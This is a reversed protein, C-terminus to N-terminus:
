VKLGDKKLRDYLERQAEYYGKVSGSEASPPDGEYEPVVRTARKDCEFITGNGLNEDVVLQYMAEAVEEPELLVTSEDIMDCKDPDDAWLPTRVGGPAVCSVRIGLEDRLGALSRVFGHLGHKSAFYLPTNIASSYGAMSGVHVLCGQQHNTTWHGIAIQSLRIPATLNVDMTAYHGPEGEADDRSATDPNAASRPPDWFSSWRPEFLGAGPVVIDVTPFASLAATWLANLQKWSTVDTKHFVASPKGGSKNSGHPYEDLLAQAEPRLQLDAIIVSCGKTLLLRCFALNIGSGGGTVLAHKGAVSLVM